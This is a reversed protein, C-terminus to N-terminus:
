LHQVLFRLVRDQYERDGLGGHQGHDLIWVTANPNGHSAEQLRQANQVSVVEDRRSAILL